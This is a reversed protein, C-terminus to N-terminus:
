EEGGQPEAPRQNSRSNRLESALRGALAIVLRIDRAGDPAIWERPPLSRLRAAAQEFRALEDDTLM